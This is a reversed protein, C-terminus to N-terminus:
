KYLQFEHIKKVREKISSSILQSSSIEAYIELVETNNKYDYKNIDIKTVLLLYELEKKISFYSELENNIKNIFLQIDDVYNLSNEFYSANILTYSAHVAISSKFLDDLRDSFVLEKYLENSIAFNKLNNNQQILKLSSLISYINNENKLLEFNSFIEDNNDISNFFSISTKVLQKKLIYNYVQFSIFFIFLITVILIIIKLNNNVFIQINKFLNNKENKENM